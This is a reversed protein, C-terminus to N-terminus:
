DERKAPLLFYVTAGQDENNFARITGNHAQIIAKCISLGLGTGRKGDATSAGSTVFSEFMTDLIKEDIGSGNDTVEFRAYEKDREDKTLYVRIRITGDQATHKMSNEMLNVLVQIILQGDMPIVLLEEPLDIDLTRSGLRREMRSVAESVIDEVVEDEHQISLRGDQIRTMNLLNNVLNSMWTSDNLIDRLLSERSEQDLKEYSELLFSASGTIGALPTRLDHSISRLLNNRLKEKESQVMIEERQQNLIVKEIAFAVETLMAKMVNREFAELVEGEKLEIGAVAFVQGANRIPMYIAKGSPLTDTTRGACHRNKLVWLAAAQEYENDLLKKAEAQEEPSGYFVPRSLNGDLAPYLVVTKHLLETLQRATGSLIGEIDQKKQLMKSTNFMIETRVSTKTAQMAQNQLKIAFSSIVLSVVLMVLFTFIYNKDYFRFTYIPVTFFFNFIVVSLFSAVAGCIRGRTTAAVVLVGLLYISIINAETMGFKKVLLGAITCVALIAATRVGDRLGPRKIGPFKRKVAEASVDPIIYIDIEPALLSLKEILNLDKNVWTKKRVSRGIVIKSVGVQRAYGAIQHAIDQGYTTAVNAGLQKALKINNDLSTELKKKEQEYETTEVFLGTFNGHFAQAMRAATRIVKANSPSASICVLIHEGAYYEQKQSMEKERIIHKNVRDACRRLAIERLATLNETTFFNTCAREVKSAEYIKGDRLREQLEEPEIDVLEVQTAEDFIFDPVREKVIVHTISSVIDNLSELHQVNLTTYVHIGADLLEQIDQYRKPHRSGPANTHALEDVLIVQPKRLLAADLDFERLTIGKYEVSRPTLAELGKTLEMTAPRTHPEIYGSIVDVGSRALDHAAELMTYTKGSGAAYGFFIKLKGHHDERERDQEQIMKLIQEPNRKEM